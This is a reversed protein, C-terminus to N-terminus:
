THSSPGRGDRVAQELLGVVWTIGRVAQEHDMNWNEVLREYTAVSWQVDLM